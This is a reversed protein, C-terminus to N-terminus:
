AYWKSVKNYEEVVNSYGIDSLLTCLADDADSHAGETDYDEACSKLKQKCKAVAYQRVKNNIVNRQVISDVIWKPVAYGSDITHGIYWSDETEYSDTDVILVKGIICKDMDGRFIVAGNMFHSYAEPKTECHKQVWKIDHTKIKIIM